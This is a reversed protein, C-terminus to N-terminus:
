GHKVEKNKEASEKVREWGLRSFPCVKICVSCGFQRSFPNACRTYDIYVPCGSNDSDIPLPTQHIAKSPCARICAGCKRCFDKVWSTDPIERIPLNEVSTYVAALRIRPGAEPGVLLGSRGITGLGADQALAIYNVDGGIAPGAHAGYGRNRFWGALKNVVVGLSHYTRFIEQYAKESPATEMSIKDMAMTLVLANPYLIRARRFIVEPRVTTCGWGTIGVKDLFDILDEKDAATMITRPPVPNHRISQASELAEVIAGKLSVKILGWHRLRSWLSGYRMVIWPVLRGGRSSKAACVPSDHDRLWPEITLRGPPRQGRFNRLSYKRMNM